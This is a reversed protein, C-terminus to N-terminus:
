FTVDVSEPMWKGCKSMVFEIQQVMQPMSPHKALKLRSCFCPPPEDAAGKSALFEANSDGIAVFTAPCIEKRLQRFARQKFRVCSKKSRFPLESEMPHMVTIPNKGNYILDYIAAWSGISKMQELTTVVWGEKAATVIVVNRASYTAIYWWLMSYVRQSLADLWAMENADPTSERRSAIDKLKTTPFLTDDGM